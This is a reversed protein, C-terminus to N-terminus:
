QLSLFKINKVLNNDRKDAEKLGLLEKALRSLEDMALDIQLCLKEDLTRSKVEKLLNYISKLERQISEVKLRDLGALTTRLLDVAACKVQITDLQILPEICSLIDVIYKSLSDGLQACVEGINTLSSMRMLEEKDKCGELLMNMVQQAYFPATANMQKSFRVLVEGVNMRLQLDLDQRSYLVVLKPLLLDTKRVTMEAMVNICALFVYPEQDALSSEILNFIQAIRSVTHADNSLILQKLKVLGHVRVPVIPDNLDKTIQDLERESMDSDSRNSNLKHHDSNTTLRDILSELNAVLDTGQNIKHNQLSNKLERLVPLCKWHILEIEKKSTMISALVELIGLCSSISHSMLRQMPKSHDQIDQRLVTIYNLLTRTILEIARTSNSAIVGSLDFRSSEEEITQELLPEVLSASLQRELEDASTWMKELFHFFVELLLTENKCMDLLSNLVSILKDIDVNHDDDKQEIIKVSIGDDEVSKSYLQSIQKSHFLAEDILCCAIGPEQSKLIEFLCCKLPQILDSPSDHLTVFVHFLKPFIELFLKVPIHNTILNRIAIISERPTISSDSKSLGDFHSGLIVNPISKDKAHPSELMAKMIICALTSYKTDCSTLLPRLQKAINSCYQDYPLCLRPLHTIIHSVAVFRQNHTTSKQSSTDFDILSLFLNIIGDSKTLFSSLQESLASRKAPDKEVASDFILKMCVKIPNDPDDPIEKSYKEKLKKINEDNFQFIEDQAM